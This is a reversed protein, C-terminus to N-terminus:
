FLQRIGDLASSTKNRLHKLKHSLSIPNCFPYIMDGELESDYAPNDTSFQTISTNQERSSNFRLKLTEAESDIIQRIRSNDNTFRPSNISEYYAGIINLKDIRETFIYEDGAM